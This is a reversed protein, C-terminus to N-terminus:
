QCEESAPPPAPPGSRQDGEAPPVCISGARPLRGLQRSQAVLHGAAGDWVEFDEDHHGGIVFRTSARCALWPSRPRARVHVTLELTTSGTAGIEMVAPPAADVLVPIALLDEM